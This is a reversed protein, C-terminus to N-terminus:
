DVQQDPEVNAIVMEHATKGTEGAEDSVDQDRAVVDDSAPAEFEPIGAEQPQM